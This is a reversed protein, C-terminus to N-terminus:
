DGRDDRVSYFFAHPCLLNTGRVFLYDMYWKMDDM